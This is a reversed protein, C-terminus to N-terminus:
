CRGETQIPATALPRPLPAHLPSPLPSPLAHRGGIVSLRGMHDEAIATFSDVWDGCNAYLLGHNHHLGALHFHGCIVGDHGRARALSVLRREHGHGFSLASNVWSLLAQIFQPPIEAFRIPSRRMEGFEAILKGDSSYVTMPVQWEVRKLESVDPLTPVVSFYAVAVALALGATGLM